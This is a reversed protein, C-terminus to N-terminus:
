GGRITLSLILSAKVWEGEIKKLEASILIKRRLIDKEKEKIRELDETIATHETDHASLLESKKRRKRELVLYNETFISILKKRFELMKVRLEREKEVAEKNHM